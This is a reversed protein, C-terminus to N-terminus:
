RTVAEPPLVVGPPAPAPPLASVRVRPLSPARDDAASRGAAAAGGVVALAAVVLLVILITSRSM